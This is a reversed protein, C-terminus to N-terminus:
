ETGQKSLISNQIGSGMVELIAGTKSPEISLNSFLVNNKSATNLQTNTRRQDFSQMRIDRNLDKRALAMYSHRQINQITANASNGSKGFGGGMSANIAQQKAVERRTTKRIADKDFSYKKLELAQEANIHLLSNYSLQNNISAQKNANYLNQYSEQQRQNYSFASTGVDLAFKALYLSEFSM